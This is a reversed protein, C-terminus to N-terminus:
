GSPKAGWLVTLIPYKTYKPAGCSSSPNCNNVELDGKGFAEGLGLQDVECPWDARELDHLRAPKDDVAPGQGQGTCQNVVM